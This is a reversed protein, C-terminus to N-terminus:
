GRRLWFDLETRVADQESLSTAYQLRHRLETIRQHRHQQAAQTNLRM